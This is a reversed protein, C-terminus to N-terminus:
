QVEGERWRKQLAGPVQHPQVQGVVGHAGHAARRQPLEQGEVARQPLEVERLADDVGAPGGLDRGAQAAVAAGQPEEGEAAVREAVGAGGGEADSRAAAAAAEKSALLFPAVEVV